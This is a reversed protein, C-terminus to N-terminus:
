QIEARYFILKGKKQFNTNLINITVKKGKETNQQAIKYMGKELVEYIIATHHHYNETIKKNGEKYEIIVKEFRIIDGPLIKEKTPNLKKGFAYKQDWTAGIENLPIQALDWCEGRGVKKGIHQEVFLLIKQNLEPITHQNEQSFCTTALLIILLIKKM